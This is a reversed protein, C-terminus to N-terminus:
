PWLTLVVAAVLMAVLHHAQEILYLDRKKGSFIANIGGTTAAFGLWMLGAIKLAGPVTNAGSFKLVEALVWCLVLNGLMTLGYSVGPNSMKSMDRGTLKSWVNGFVKPNYWIYGVVMVALAAAVVALYNVGVLM